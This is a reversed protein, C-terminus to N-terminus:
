WKPQVSMQARDNNDDYNEDEESSCPWNWGSKASFVMQCIVSKKWSFISIRQIKHKLNEEGSSSPVFCEKFFSIWNREFSWVM